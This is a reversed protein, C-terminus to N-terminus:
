MKLGDRLFDAGAIAPAVVDYRVAATGAFAGPAALSEGVSRMLRRTAHATYSRTLLAGNVVWDFIAAWDVQSVALGM